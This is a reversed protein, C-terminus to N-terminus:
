NPANLIPIYKSNSPDLCEGRTPAARASAASRQASGTEYFFVGRGADLPSSGVRQMNGQNSNIMAGANDVPFPVSIEQLKEPVLQTDNLQNDTRAADAKPAVPMNVHTLAQRSIDVNNRDQANTVGVQNRPVIVPRGYVPRSSYKQTSDIVRPEPVPTNANAFANVKLIENAQQLLRRQISEIEGKSARSNESLDAILQNVNFESIRNEMENTQSTSAQNAEIISLNNNKNANKEESKPAKVKMESRDPPTVVITPLNGETTAITERSKGRKVKRVTRSAM